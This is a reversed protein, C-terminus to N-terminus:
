RHSLVSPAPEVVLTARRIEVVRVEVGAGVPRGDSALAPWDEGAIWVHGRELPGEIPDVVLAIQGIMAAAGSLMDPAHRARLYGLLPHRVAAIGLISVGAFVVAQVVIEAGIFAAIAAGLAGLAIFGAFLSVTLVEGIAFVLAVVIWLLTVADGRILCRVL